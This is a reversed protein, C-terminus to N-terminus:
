NKKLEGSDRSADVWQGFLRLVRPVFNSSAMTTFVSLGRQRIREAPFLYRPSQFCCPFIARKLLPSLSSKQPNIAIYSPFFITAFTIPIWFSFQPCFQVVIHQRVAAFRSKQLRIITDETSYPYVTELDLSTIPPLVFGRARRAAAM